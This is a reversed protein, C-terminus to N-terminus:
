NREIVGCSVRGGAGADQGHSDPKEHVIIAAGDEDFVAAHPGPESGLTIALNFAEARATGDAHAYINPMDGAHFGEAYLFGHGEGDTLHDGAASFDPACAGVAHVHFGHWGEALGTLDASVLVGHPGETFTVSGMPAGDPATMAASARAGVSSRAPEDDECAALVLAAALAAVCLILWHARM